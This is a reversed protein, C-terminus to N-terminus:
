VLTVLTLGASMAAASFTPAACTSTGDDVAEIVADGGAVREWVRLWVPVLLEECVALLLWVPVPLEERVAVDVKDAELVGDVVGVAVDDKLEPEDGELEAVDVTVEDWVAAALLECVLM